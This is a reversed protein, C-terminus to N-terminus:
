HQSCFGMAKSTESCCEAVHFADAAAGPLSYVFASAAEMYVLRATKQPDYVYAGIGSRYRRLDLDRSPNVRVAVHKEKSLVMTVTDAHIARVQVGSSKLCAATSDLAMQWHELASSLEPDRQLEAKSVPPAFGVVVRQQEIDTVAHGTAACGSTLLLAAAGATSAVGVLIRVILSTRM